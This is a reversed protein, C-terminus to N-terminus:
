RRRRRLPRPGDGDSAPAATRSNLREGISARLAEDSDDAPARETRLGMRSLMQEWASDVGDGEESGVVEEADMGGDLGVPPPQRGPWRGARETASRNAM